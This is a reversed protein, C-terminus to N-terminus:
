FCMLPNPPRRGNGGSEGKETPEGLGVGGTALNSPNKNERQWVGGRVDHWRLSADLGGRTMGAFAPMWTM